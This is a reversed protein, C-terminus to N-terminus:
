KKHSYNLDSLSISNNNQKFWKITEKLGDELSYKEDWNMIKRAKSSDLLYKQDKALRDKKFIVLKKYSYDTLKCILKVLDIIKIVKKSSINYTEGQKSKTLSKIIADSFDDEFIFSRESLGKGHVELKKNNLICYITKPIIRYIQQGPGYFNAFRLNVYNLNKFRSYIDFFNDATAQTVAYPTSPKFEDNEKIKGPKNGYVEPTSIRVFIYKHKISTIKKILKYKGLCNTNIWDEPTIWSQGVMSQSSFDVIYKIKKKNIIKFVNNRQFNNNIDFKVYNYNNKNIYPKYIRFTKKIEKSRSSAFISYGKKLAYKIFARGAYSNSGFVAIKIKKKM